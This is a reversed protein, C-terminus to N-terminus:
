YPVDGIVTAREMVRRNPYYDSAAYHQCSRNDWFALSNPQWRFRCQYEPIAAQAWLHKLLERGEAEDMGEVEVTFAVNVYIGKRGTEPHTRVIPHWPNPYKDEFEQIQEASMGNKQMAMRFPWFDHRAKRGEIKEKIEDSLGDYAAYMNSFLTDGGVEPLERARLVSGLSPAQRWTVDSHWANEKGKSKEDHTIVLLEPHDPHCPAFPHVELEGFASAFRVHDESTIDQDRFFMVKWDLLIDRLTRLQDAGMEQRLDIGLLEGGITPTMPQLDWGFAACRDQLEPLRELPLDQLLKNGGHGDLDPLEAKQQATM